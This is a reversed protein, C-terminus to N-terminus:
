VAIALKQQMYRAKAIGDELYLYDLEFSKRILGATNKVDLKKLLNRRHSFITHASLHLAAAMEETSYEQSVLFLIQQERISILNLDTHNMILRNNKYM